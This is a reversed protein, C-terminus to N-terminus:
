GGFDVARIDEVGWTHFAYAPCTWRRPDMDWPMVSPPFSAGDPIPHPAIPDGNRRVLFDPDMPRHIPDPVNTWEPNIYALRLPRPMVIPLPAKATPRPQFSLDCRPGHGVYNIRGARESDAARRQAPTWFDPWHWPWRSATM